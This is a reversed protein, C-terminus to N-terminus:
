WEHLRIGRGDAGGFVSGLDERECKSCMCGAQLTDQQDAELLCGFHLCGEMFACLGSDTTGEFHQFNVLISSGGCGVCGLRARLLELARM